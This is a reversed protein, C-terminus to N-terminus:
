IAFQKYYMVAIDGFKIKHVKSKSLQINCPLLPWGITITDFILDSLIIECTWPSSVYMAYFDATVILCILPICEYM